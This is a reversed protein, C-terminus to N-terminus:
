NNFNPKEPFDGIFKKFNRYFSSYDSFGCSFAISKQSYDTTKLLTNATSVRLYNIYQHATKGTNVKVISNLTTKSIYYKKCIVDLSINETYHKEIYDIVKVETKESGIFTNKEREDVVLDLESIISIIRSLIHVRGLHKKLAEVLSYLLNYCINSKFKEPYFLLEDISKGDFVRLFESDGQIDNFINPSITIQMYNNLKNSTREFTAKQNPPIIALAGDTITIRKGKMEFIRDCSLWFLITYFGSQVPLKDIYNITKIDKPTDNHYYYVQLDSQNYFKETKM